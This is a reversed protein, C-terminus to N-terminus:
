QNDTISDVTKTNNLLQFITPIEVVLHVRWEDNRKLMGITENLTENPTTKTYAVTATSDTTIEVSNIKITAPTNDPIVNPALNPMIAQKVFQLTINRTEETAYPEAEEIRYNAMADLYGQAADKIKQEDSNCASLLIASWLMTIFLKYHRTM